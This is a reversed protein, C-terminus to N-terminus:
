KANMPTFHISGELEHRFLKQGGVDRDKAKGKGFSLVRYKFKEPYELIFDRLITALDQL